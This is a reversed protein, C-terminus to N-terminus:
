RLSAFLSAIDERTAKCIDNAMNGSAAANAALEDLAEQTDPVGMATLTTRMGTLEKLEALRDAAANADAFGMMRSLTHLLPRVAADKRFWADLTLACAEGHPIHYKATLLYSCAHSGTTGTNSFAYGAITSAMAMRERAVADSGDRFAAELNEFALKAARVALGDSVPNARVSCMADLSHAIVDLGTSATVAPPVTYTLVPDVLALRPFMPSGFIAIKANAAHDSLVAGWGVESGTGATTPVAILPLADTVPRGRLLELGTCDMAAAAAAAKACDMSSGGGVAVVGDVGEAKALAGCENVLIDTPDATIKDFVVYEVGANRLSEEAKPAIGAVKVGSDYVCLVKKCGLDKVKQGLERIAGNGFVVPVLQNYQFSM